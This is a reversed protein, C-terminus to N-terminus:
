RTLGDLIFLPYIVKFGSKVAANFFAQQVSANAAPLTLMVGM